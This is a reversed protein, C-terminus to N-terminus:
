RGQLERYRDKAKAINLQLKQKKNGSSIFLPISAGATIIGMSTFAVKTFEHFPATIFATALESTLSGDSKPAPSSLAAITLIAGGALAAFGATKLTSQRKKYKHVQFIYGNLQDDNWQYTSLDLNQKALYFHLDEDNSLHAAYQGNLGNAVLTFALILLSFRLIANRM